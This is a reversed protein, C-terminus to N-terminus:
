VDLKVELVEGNKKIIEFDITAIGNRVEFNFNDINEILKHSKCIETIERKIESAVFGKNQMKLGIYNEIYCGFDINKYVEFKEKKTLITFAVWQCLAEDQTAEIIKGDRIVYERKKFDYLPVRGLNEMNEIIDEEDEIIMDIDIEPIM